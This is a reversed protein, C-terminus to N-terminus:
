VGAFFEFLVFMSASCFVPHSASMTGYYDTPEKPVQVNTFLVKPASLQSCFIPNYIVVVVVFSGSWWGLYIYQWVCKNLFM